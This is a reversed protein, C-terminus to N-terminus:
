KLGLVLHIHNLTQKSKINASLEGKDLIQDIQTQSINELKEQIDILFLEAGSAVSKKLAGYQTQGEWTKKTQEITKGSFLMDLQLLNTIGPQNEWDWRINEFSDTNASMIKKIADKPTDFLTITGKPDNESKSMKKDPTSLSRIKVPQETGFYNLQDSWKKPLVFLDQGFRHNMRTAVDRCLELHQQQDAGLPVYEAGYLLIDAAMLLPYTFLGVSASEQAKAKEKFQIQGSIEGVSSFCSLIWALESHASVHSQRFIHVNSKQAEVGCALYLRINNQIKQYFAFHDIPITFSHLDPVFIYLDDTQTVRKTMSVFPMIAGFYNGLHLDSNAKIGTIITSMVLKMGLELYWTM